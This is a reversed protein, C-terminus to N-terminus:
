AAKQSVIIAHISPIEGAEIMTRDLQLLLNIIARDQLSSPDYNLFCKEDLAYTIISGNYYHVNTNKFQQKIIPIIEDSRAGESPDGCKINGTCVDFVQGYRFKRSIKKGRWLLRNIKEGMKFVMRKCASWNPSINYQDFNIRGLRSFLFVVNKWTAGRWFNPIFTDETAWRLRQPLIHIASNIIERHRSSLDNCAPGVYEDCVLYGGPKLSNYIEGVLHELNMIHHMGGGVYVLDYINEGLHDVNLDAVKYDINAYGEDIAAKKAYEVIVSSIDLGLCHQFVGMKALRRDRQGQGCCLSLCKKVPVADKLYNKIFWAEFWNGGLSVDSTKSVMRFFYDRAPPFSYIDLKPKESIQSWQNLVKKKDNNGLSEKM